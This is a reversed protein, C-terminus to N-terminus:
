LVGRRRKLLSPVNNATEVLSLLMLIKTLISPWRNNFENSFRVKSGALTGESVFSLIACISTQSELKVEFRALSLNTQAPMLPLETSLQLCVQPVFQQHIQDPQKRLKWPQVPIDVTLNLIDISQLSLFRAYPM